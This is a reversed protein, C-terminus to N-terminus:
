SHVRELPYNHPQLALLREQSALTTVGIIEAAENDINLITGAKDYVV